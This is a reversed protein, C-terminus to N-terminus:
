KPHYLTEGGGSSIRVGLKLNIELNGKDKLADLLISKIYKNEDEITLNGFDFIFTIISFPLPNVTYVLTKKQHSGKKILGIEQRKANYAINIRYPNCAEIFIANFKLKKGQMTHKCLIESILGMSNCTNIEDFFVLIKPCLNKKIIIEGNNEVELLNNKKVWEIIDNDTLGEHINFIKM